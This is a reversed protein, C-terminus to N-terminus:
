PQWRVSPTKSILISNGAADVNGVPWSMQPQLRIRKCVETRNRHFFGGGWVLSTM